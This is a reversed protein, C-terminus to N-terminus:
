ESSTSASNSPSPISTASGALPSPGRLPRSADVRARSFVDEHTAHSAAALKKRFTEFSRNLLREGEIIDKDEPSNTMFMCVALCKTMRFSVDSAGIAELAIPLATRLLTHQVDWKSNVALSVALDLVADLTKAHAPGHTGLWSEYIARHLALSKDTMRLNTYALALNKQAALLAKKEKPHCRKLIEVEAERVPLSEEHSDNEYLANGLTTMATLRSVDAEDRTEYRTWCERAIALQAAGRFTSRCEKHGMWETFDGTKENREYAAEALCAVHWFGKVGRCACGRMLGPGGGSCFLCVAADLEEKTSAPEKKHLTGMLDAVKAADWRKAAAAAGAPSAGSSPPVVMPTPDASGAM